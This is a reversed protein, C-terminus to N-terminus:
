ILRIGLIDLRQLKSIPSFGIKELTKQSKLDHSFCPALVKKNRSAMQEIVFASLYAFFGRGRFIPSTFFDSLIVEDAALDIKCECEPIVERGFVAWGMCAITDSHRVIYCEGGNSFRDMIARYKDSDMAFGLFSGITEINEPGLHEIRTDDRAEFTRVAKELGFIRVSRYDIISKFLKKLGLEIIGGLGGRHYHASFAAKLTKTRHNEILKRIIRNKKIGDYFGAASYPRRSSYIKIQYNNSSSNVFREKHGGEGRSFDIVDHGERVTQETLLHLLIVGASKKEYYSETAINYLNLRKKYDFAYLYALPTNGHNLVILRLIVKPALAKVLADHFQRNERSEFKGGVLRDKWRVSHSHYFQPLMEAIQNADRYHELGLGDMKEFFNIFRKLSTGRKLSFDKRKEEGGDYKFAYCTEIVKMRFLMNEQRAYSELATRSISEEPIQSFEISDWDLIHQKLFSLVSSIIINKNTGIFDCYDANPTGIFQIIKKGGYNTRMLPALGIFSDSDKVALIFLDHSGGYVQWWTHLWEYTIFISDFDSRELLESWVPMLKEFGELSDIKIVDAM